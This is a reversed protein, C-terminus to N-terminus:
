DPGEDEGVGFVIADASILGPGRALIGLSLVAGSLHVLALLREPATAESLIRLAEPSVDTPLYLMGLVILFAFATVRSLFGFFILAGGIFETAAIVRAVPVAQPVGRSHLILAISYYSHAQGTGDESLDLKLDLDQQLVCCEDFTFTRAGALANWGIPVFMICLVVRALFPGISQAIHAM